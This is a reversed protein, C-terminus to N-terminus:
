LIAQREVSAAIASFNLIIASCFTLDNPVYVLLLGNPNLTRTHYNAYYNKRHTFLSFFFRVTDLQM